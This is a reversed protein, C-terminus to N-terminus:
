RYETAKLADEAARMTDSDPRLTLVREWYERAKDIRQLKFYGVGLNFCAEAYNPSVEVAKQWYEIAQQTQGQRDLINGYTFFAAPEVNSSQIIPQLIRQAEETREEYYYARALMTKEVNELSGAADFPELVSITLVHFGLALAMKAIEVAEERSSVTATNIQGLYYSANERNYNAEEISAMQMLLRTNGQDAALASKVIREAASYRGGNIFVRALRVADDSALTVQESQQFLKELEADCAIRVTSGELLFVLSPVADQDSDVKFYLDIRSQTSPFVNFPSKVARGAQDAIPAYQKKLELVFDNLPDIRVTRVGTNVMTLNIYLEDQKGQTSLGGSFPTRSINNVTLLFGGPHIVDEGMLFVGQAFLAAPLFFIFVLLMFQRIALNLFKM